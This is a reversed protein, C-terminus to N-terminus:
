APCGSLASLHYANANALPLRFDPKILTGARVVNGARRQLSYLVMDDDFRENPSECAARAPTEPFPSSLSLM